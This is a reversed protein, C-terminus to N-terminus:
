QYFWYAYAIHDGELTIRVRDQKLREGSIAIGAESFEQPGAMLLRVESPKDGDVSVILNLPSSFGFNQVHGPLPVGGIASTRLVMQLDIGPEVDVEMSVDGIVVRGAEILPQGALMLSESMLPLHSGRIRNEVQLNSRSEDPQYGVNIRDVLRKGEILPLVHGAM